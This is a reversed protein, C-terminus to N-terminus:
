SLKGRLADTPKLKTIRRTPLYSVIIVSIFLIMTTILYLGAGYKPYLISPIASGVGEIMSPLGFGTKALYAMIPIGYISGAVFALIGLLSGEITFLGIINWRTMGLAMLTGMEKRRRFIALVQTDFVALLAMGLLLVYMFASTMKKRNMTDDLDKFLYSHNRYIWNNNVSPIYVANKKMTVITAQEPAQLMVRMKNLPIWIQGRDISQVDTNMIEVIKIDAADFTGNINRWRVSVYDGKKLSTNNAMRSGILGPIYATDANNKLVMSPINVIRQEPDIGKLLASEVHGKPFIAAQVILIATANERNIEELLANPLPSHSKEFSFPDYPDYEKQWFQGGGIESDIMGDKVQQTMGDYFGETFVILVFAFSLVFVNLWTRFGAHTINKFALKLILM